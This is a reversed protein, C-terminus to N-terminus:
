YYKFQFYQACRLYFTNVISHNIKDVLENIKKIREIKEQDTLSKDVKVEDEIRQKLSQIYLTKQKSIDYQDTFNDQDSTVYISYEAEAPLRSEQHGFYTGGYSLYSFISNINLYIHTLIKRQESKEAGTNRQKIFYAYLLCYTDQGAESKFGKGYTNYFIDPSQIIECFFEPHADVIENFEKKSFKRTIDNETKITITDLDTYYKLNTSELAHLKKSESIQEFVNAKRTSEIKSKAHQNEKKVCSFILFISLAFINNKM